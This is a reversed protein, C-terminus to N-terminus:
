GASEGDGLEMLEAGHLLIRQLGISRLDIAVHANGLPRPRRLKLNRWLAVTSM